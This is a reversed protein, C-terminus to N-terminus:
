DKIGESLDRLMNHLAEGWKGKGGDPRKDPNALVYALWIAAQQEDITAAMQHEMTTGDLRKVSVTVLGKMALSADSRLQKDYSVRSKTKAEKPEDGDQDDKEDSM